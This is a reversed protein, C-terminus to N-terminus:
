RNRKACDRKITKYSLRPKKLVGLLQGIKIRVKRNIKIHFSFNITDYHIFSDGVKDTQVISATDNVLTVEKWDRPEGWKPMIFAKQTM